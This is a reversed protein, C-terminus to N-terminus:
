RFMVFLTLFTLVILLGIGLWLFKNKVKTLRMPPPGYAPAIMPMPPQDRKGIIDMENKLEQIIENNTKVPQYPMPPPGYVPTFFQTEVSEVESPPKETANNLSFGCSGCFTGTASNERGCRICYVNQSLDVGFTSEEAQLKQRTEEILETNEENSESSRPFIPKEYESM